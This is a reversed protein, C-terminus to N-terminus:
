IMMEMMLSRLKLSTIHYILGKVRVLMRVLGTGKAVQVDGRQLQNKKRPLSSLASPLSSMGLEKMIKNNNGVNVDRGM